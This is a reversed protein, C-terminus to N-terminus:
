FHFINTKGNIFLLAIVLCAIALIIAGSKRPSPKKSEIIIPPYKEEHSHNSLAGM